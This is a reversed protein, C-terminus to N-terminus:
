SALFYNSYTYFDIFMLIIKLFPHTKWSKVNVQARKQNFWILYNHIKQYIARRGREPIIVVGPAGAKRHQHTNWWASWWRRLSIKRGLQCVLNFPGPSLCVKLNKKHKRKNSFFKM